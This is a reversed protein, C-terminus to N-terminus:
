PSKEAVFTGNGASPCVGAPLAEFFYTGSCTTASSFNGTAVVRGQTLLIEFSFGGGVIPEVNSLDEFTLTCGTAIHLFHLRSVADNSVQFTVEGGTGTQGTWLGNVNEAEAAYDRTGIGFPTLSGIWDCGPAFLAIALLATAALAGARRM